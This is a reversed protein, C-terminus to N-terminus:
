GPPCAALIDANPSCAAKAAQPRPALSPLCAPLRGSTLTRPPATKLRCRALLLATSVELQALRGGAGRVELQALRSGAGTNTIRWGAVRVRTMLAGAPM